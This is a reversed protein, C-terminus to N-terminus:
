GVIAAHVRLSQLDNIEGREREERDERISAGFLRTKTERSPHWIESLTSAEM